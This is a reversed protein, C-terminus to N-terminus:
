KKIAKKIATKLSSNERILDIITEPYIWTNNSMELIKEKSVNEDFFIEPFLKSLEELYKFRAETYEKEIFDDRSPSYLYKGYM